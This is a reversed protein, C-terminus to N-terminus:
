CVVFKILWAITSGFNEFYKNNIHSADDDGGYWIGVVVFDVFLNEIHFKLVVRIFRSSHFASLISHIFSHFYFDIEDNM